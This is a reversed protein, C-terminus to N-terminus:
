KSQWWEVWDDWRRSKRGTLESLCRWARERMDRTPEEPLERSPSPELYSILTRIHGSPRVRVLQIMLGLQEEQTSAERLMGELEQLAASAVEPDRERGPVMVPAGSQPRGPLPEGEAYWRRAEERTPMWYELTTDMVAEPAVEEPPWYGRVAGPDIAMWFLMDRVNRRVAPDADHRMASLEPLLDAPVLGQLALTVLAESARTRAGDRSNAVLTRAADQGFLAMLARTRDAQPGLTEM